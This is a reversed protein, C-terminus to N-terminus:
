ALKTTFEYDEKYLNYKLTALLNYDDKMILNNNIATLLEQLYYLVLM